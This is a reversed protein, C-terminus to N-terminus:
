AATAELTTNIEQMLWEQEPESEAALVFSGKEYVVEVGFSPTNASRNSNVAPTYPRAQQVRDRAVSRTRSWLLCRSRMVMEEPNVHLMKKSWAAWAVGGLMGVGIVWFPISFCAFVINMGQPGQGGILGLAGATWFTIFALWFVAFGLLGCTAARMGAAPVYVTLSDGVREAIIRANFPRPLATKKPVPPAAYGPLVDALPFVDNCIGCKGWGKELDINEAPVAAGCAPCQVKM